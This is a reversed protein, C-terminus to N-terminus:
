IIQWKLPKKETVQKICEVIDHQTDVPLEKIKIIFHEKTPGQVACGLLLLVLLKLQELSVESGPSRGLVVCDPLSIIIQGLEEQFV